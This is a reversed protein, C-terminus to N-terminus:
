KKSVWRDQSMGVHSLICGQEFSLTGNAEEFHFPVVLLPNMMDSVPHLCLSGLIPDSSSSLLLGEANGAM